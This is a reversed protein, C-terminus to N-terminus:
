FHSRKDSVELLKWSVIPIGELTEIPIWYVKSPRTMHISTQYSDNELVMEEGFFDGAYLSEVRQGQSDQIHIEGEKLLYLGARAELPLPGSAFEVIEMHQAIKNQVLSSLGEGFLWTRRLFEINDQISIVQDLLGNTELFTQYVTISMTLTQVHSLTRYTGTSEIDKLCCVVGIFSGTSLSFNLESEGLICEVTGSLILYVVSAKEGKGLIITGPNIVKIPNNLL